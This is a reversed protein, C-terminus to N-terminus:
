SQREKLYSILDICGNFDLQISFLSPSPVQHHYNPKLSAANQNDLNNPHNPRPLPLGRKRHCMIAAFVIANLLILCIGVTMTVTLATAYDYEGNMGLGMGTADNRNDNSQRNSYLLWCYANRM